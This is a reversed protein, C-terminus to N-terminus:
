PKQITNVFTSWSLYIDNGQYYEMTYDHGNVIYNCAPVDESALRSFIHSSQLININNLSGVICCLLALHVIRPRWKKLCLLQIVIIVLTSGTGVRLVHKGGRICAVWSELCARGNEQDM